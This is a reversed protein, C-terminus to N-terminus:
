LEPEPDSGGPHHPGRSVGPSDRVFYRLPWEPALRVGIRGSRGVARDAVAWGSLFRLPAETMRHGNSGGDVGLAQTLRGPGAALPERGKRRGLAVETGELLSLGRILVAGPDGKLGTVLNLCWHVGHSRYVYAIGGEAYMIRNRATPARTAAHSAPDEVGLYAETEVIVGMVQHGGLRSQLRLGLLGRAVTRADKRFFAPDPSRLPPEGAIQWPLGGTVDAVPTEAKARAAAVEAGAM